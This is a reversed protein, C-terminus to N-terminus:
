AVNQAVSTSSHARPPTVSATTAGPEREVGIVTARARSARKRSWTWTSSRAAPNTASPRPNADPCGATTTVVLLPVGALDAEVVAPHLEVAATGSTTVVVAPRGKALGLGLAMFGASREDIQVHVRISEHRLLAVAM